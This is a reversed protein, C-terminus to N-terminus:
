MCNHTEGSYHKGKELDRIKKYRGEILKGKLRKTSKLNRNVLDSKYLAAKQISTHRFFFREKLLKVIVYNYIISMILVSRSFCHEITCM